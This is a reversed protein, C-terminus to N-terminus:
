HERSVKIMHGLEPLILRELATRVGDPSGPLCFILKGKCAGATARSLMAPSGIEEFSVKRFLEGFGPIEKEFFPKASEVTVDRPSLGTGGTIIVADVTVRALARRISRRIMSVSDSILERGEVRHQSQELLKEMVDGSADAPKGGLKLEKFKSTSCTVIFVGILKPSITKHLEAVKSL